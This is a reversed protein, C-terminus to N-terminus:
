LMPSTPMVCSAEDSHLSYWRCSTRSCNDSLESPGSPTLTTSAYELYLTEKLVSKAIENLYLPEIKVERRILDPRPPEQSQQVTDLL